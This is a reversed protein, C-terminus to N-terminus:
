SRSVLKLQYRPRISCVRSFVAKYISINNVSIQNKRKMRKSTFENAIEAFRTKLSSFKVSAFNPSLGM